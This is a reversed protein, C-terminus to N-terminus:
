YVLFKCFNMKGVKRLSCVLSLFNKNWKYVNMLRSTQYCGRKGSKSLRLGQNRGKEGEM